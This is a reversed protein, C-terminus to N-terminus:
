PSPSLPRSANCPPAATGKAARAPDSLNTRALLLGYVFAILSGVPVYWPWALPQLTWDPPAFRSSPVPVLVNANAWPLLLLALFLGGTQAAISGRTEVDRWLPRVRCLIWAAAMGIAFIRCLLQETEGHRALAFVWAVSLPASWTFGSGDPRRPLWALFFSALLAGQTLGAMALGMDLISAYDGRARKMALAGLCLVLGAVLVFVRAALVRRAESAPRSSARRASWPDYLNAIATQSLATLVGALTSIAAAFIGAVILGKWPSAVHEVVFLPLIRDGNEHYLSLAEGTLPNREYWAFLGVGILAVLVTVLVSVSSVVLAKRAERVSGCCFVRQAMLQDMGYAGIGGWSSALLAAWFSFAKAPSRDFDLVDFKHADIGVQFFRQWGTDLEGVVAFLATCAAALFVFFLLLDTWVVTSMGGIWTWFVAFLGIIGISIALSSVHTGAALGALEDHLVVELVLATLYLRAGQALVSGLAFLASTVQRARVGLRSEVYDYPSYIEREFWAPVLIWAVICRALVNGVIAIQLYACDGGPKFVLFPVSVLTLASIETAVISGSVAWWPLKKGGLFYDRISGRRGVVWGIVTTVLLVGAVVSWDLLTFAGGLATPAAAADLSALTVRVM